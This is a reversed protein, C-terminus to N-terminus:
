IEQFTGKYYFFKSISSSSINPRKKAPQKEEKRLPNNVEGKFEKLIIFNNLNVHKKL